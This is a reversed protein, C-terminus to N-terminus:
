RRWNMSKFRMWSPCCFLRRCRIWGAFNAANVVEEVASDISLMLEKYQRKLDRFEM